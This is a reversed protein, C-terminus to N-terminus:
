ANVAKVVDSLEGNELMEAIVDGTGIFEGKAFIQPITPVQTYTKVGQRVEEDELVDFSGLDSEKVGARKLAEIARASFGCQPFDPSGKMFIFFPKSTVLTKIREQIQAM